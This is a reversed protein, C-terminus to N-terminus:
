GDNLLKRGRLVCQLRNLLARPWLKGLPYNKVLVDLADRLRRTANSWQYNVAYISDTIPVNETGLLKSIERVWKCVHWARYCFTRNKLKNELSTVGHVSRHVIALSNAGSCESKVRDVSNITLSKNFASNIWRMENIKYSGLSISANLWHYM